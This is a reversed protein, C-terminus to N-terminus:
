ITRLKYVQSTSCPINFIYIHTLMNGSLTTLSKTTRNLRCLISANGELLSLVSLCFNLTSLM